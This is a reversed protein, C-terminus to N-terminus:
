RELFSRGLQSSANGACVSNSRRTFLQHPANGTQSQRRVQNPDRGMRHIGLRRSTAPPLPRLLYAGRHDATYWFQGEFEKNNTWVPDYHYLHVSGQVSRVAASARQWNALLEQPSFFTRTALLSALTAGLMFLLLLLVLRTRTPMPQEKVDMRRIM